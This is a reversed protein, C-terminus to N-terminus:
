VKPRIRTFDTAGRWADHEEDDIGDYDEDDQNNVRKIFSKYKKMITKGDLEKRASKKLSRSRSRKLYPPM